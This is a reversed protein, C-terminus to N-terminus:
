SDSSFIIRKLFSTLFPLMDFFLLIKTVTGTQRSLPVWSSNRWSKKGKSIFCLCVVTCFEMADTRVYAAVLFAWGRTRRRRRGRDLNRRVPLGMAGGSRFGSSKLMLSGLTPLLEALLRCSSASTIRFLTNFTKSSTSRPL